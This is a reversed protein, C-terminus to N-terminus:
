PPGVAPASSAPLPFWSRCSHSPRHRGPLSPRSAPSSRADSRDELLRHPPPLHHSRPPIHPPHRLDDPPHTRTLRVLRRQHSPFPLVSSALSKLGWYGL